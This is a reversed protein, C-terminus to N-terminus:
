RGEFPDSAEYRRYEGACKLDPDAEFCARLRSGAVDGEHLEPGTDRVADQQYRLDKKDENVLVGWKV